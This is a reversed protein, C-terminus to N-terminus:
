KEQHDIYYQRVKMAAVPKDTSILDAGMNIMEAADSDTNVGQVNVEM